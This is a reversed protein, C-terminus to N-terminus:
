ASTAYNTAAGSKPDPTKRRTPELGTMRVTMFHLRSLLRKSTPKKNKGRRLTVFRPAGLGSCCIYVGQSKDAIRWAWKVCSIVDYFNVFGYGNPHHTIVLDINYNKENLRDALILESTQMDIGCLIKKVDKDEAINLIRTDSYPNFLTDKDFYEKKKDDLKDYSKKINNLEKEVTERGRPDVDIACDIAAMYFDNIKLAM